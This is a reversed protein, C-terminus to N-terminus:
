IIIFAYVTEAYRVTALTAPQGTEIFSGSASVLSTKFTAVQPTLTFTGTNAQMATGLLFTAPQGTEAVAGMAAALAIAFSSNGGTLAFSGNAAALTFGGTTSFTVPEGTLTFAGFGPNLKQLFTAAEGTLAFSGFGSSSAITFLGPEGTLAYSGAAASLTFSGVSFPYQLGAGSNYLSTVETSTLARSWIGVEDIIGNFERGAANSQSGIRMEGTNIPLTGFVSISGDVSANVYGVASGGTSDYTFVLHYWTGTALTNAGTGDYSFQNGTNIYYALQGTSKVLPSWYDTTANICTAIANYSHPFSTANIWCSLSFDPGMPFSLVKVYDSTGGFSLGSNIKAATWTPSGILTGTLGGGSADAASTGTNDDLKYYAVLNTTLSM